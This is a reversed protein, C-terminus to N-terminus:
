ADEIRVVRGIGAAFQAQLLFVEQNGSGNLINNCAVFATEWADARQRVFDGDVQVISMRHEGNWFQHADQNVFFADFPSFCPIHATLNERVGVVCQHAFGQFGPLNVQHATQQRAMQVDDKFDVGVEKRAM